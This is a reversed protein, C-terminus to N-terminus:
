HLLSRPRGVVDSLRRVVNVPARFITDLPLRMIDVLHNQSSVNYKMLDLLDTGGAIFKAADHAAIESM